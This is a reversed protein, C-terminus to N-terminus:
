ARRRVRHSQESDIDRQEDALRKVGTYTEEIEANMGDVSQSLNGLLTPTPPWIMCSTQLCMLVVCTAGNAAM